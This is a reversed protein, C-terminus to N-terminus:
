AVYQVWVCISTIAMFGIVGFASGLGDVWRRIVRAASLVQPRAFVLNKDTEPQLRVWRGCRENDRGVRKIPQWCGRRIVSM